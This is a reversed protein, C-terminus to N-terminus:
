KMVIHRKAWLFSTTANSDGPRRTLSSRPGPRVRSRPLSLRLPPVMGADALVGLARVEAEDLDDPARPIYGTVDAPSLVAVVCDQCGAGRLACRGCDIVM